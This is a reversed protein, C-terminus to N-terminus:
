AAPTVRRRDSLLAAAGVLLLLGTSGASADLEPVASGGAAAGGGSTTYNIGAVSYDHTQFGVLGPATFVIADVWVDPHLTLEGSTGAGQIARFETTGNVTTYYGIEAYTGGLLTREIFLDNIFVDTILVTESFSITLTERGEVQSSDYGTLSRVGFGDASDQYLTSFAPGATLTLTVGDDATYTFSSRHNASSFESSRFDVEAAFAPAAVLLVCLAVASSFYKIM